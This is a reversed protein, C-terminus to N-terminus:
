FDAEKAAVRARESAKESLGRCLTRRSLGYAIPGSDSRLLLLSLIGIGVIQMANAEISYVDTLQLGVDESIPVCCCCM